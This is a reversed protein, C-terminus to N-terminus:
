TEIVFQVRHADFRYDFAHTPEDAEDASVGSMGVVPAGSKLNLARREDDSATNSTIRALKRRYNHVGAQAFARRLGGVTELLDVVRGFRDAPMWLTTYAVPVDNATLVQVIEVVQTRQAVRLLKAVEVPPSCLRRSLIRRGYTFGAKELADVFRTRAGIVFEVRRPAIFVGQYSLNRLVGRKVLEAIAARLTHRGVALDAALLAETPLRGTARFAGAAIDKELRDAVRRWTAAKATAGAIGRRSTAPRGSAKKRKSQPGSAM